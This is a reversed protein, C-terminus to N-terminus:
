LYATNLWWAVFFTVPSRNPQWHNIQGVIIPDDKRYTPLVGLKDFIKDRLAKGTAQILEPRTVQLPFEVDKWEVNRYMAVKKVSGDQNKEGTETRHSYQRDAAANHFEGVGVPLTEEKVIEHNWSDVQHSSLRPDPVVRNSRVAFCQVPFPPVIYYGADLAAKIKEYFTIRKKTQNILHKIKNDHMKNEILAALVDTASKLENQVEAIKNACWSTLNNQALMMEGPNLAILETDM